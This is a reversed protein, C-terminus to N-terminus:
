KLMEVPHPSRASRDRVSLCEAWSEDGFPHRVLVHRWGSGYPYEKFDTVRKLRNMTYFAGGDVVVQEITEFYGFVDEPDMEGFSNTNVVLDVLDFCRSSVTLGLVHGAFYCQMKLCPEADKVFYARIRFRRSIALAMAGFGGGIDLVRLPIRPEVHEAITQVYYAMRLSNATAFVGDVERGDPSGFSSDEFHRPEVGAAKAREYWLDFRHTGVQIGEMLQANRRFTSWDVTKLIREKEAWRAPWNDIGISSGVLGSM